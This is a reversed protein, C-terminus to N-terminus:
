RAIQFSDADEWAPFKKRFHLLESRSLAVTVEGEVKDAVRGLLEGKPSFVVSGGDHALGEGDSGVRNVGCVYSM